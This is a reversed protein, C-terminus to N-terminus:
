AANEAATESEVLRVLQFTRGLGARARRWAPPDTVDEGDRMGKGRDARVFGSIVSSRTSKGSGNPGVIGLIKGDRVPREDKARRLDPRRRLQPAERNNLHTKSM